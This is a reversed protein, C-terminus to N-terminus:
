SNQTLLDLTEIQGLTVQTPTTSFYIGVAAADESPNAYDLFSRGSQISGSSCVLLLIRQFNNRINLGPKPGVGISLLLFQSDYGVLEVLRLGRFRSHM